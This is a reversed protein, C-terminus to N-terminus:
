GIYVEVRLGIYVLVEFRLGLGEVIRIKKSVGMKALICSALNLLNLAEELHELLTYGSSLPHCDSLQDLGWFM